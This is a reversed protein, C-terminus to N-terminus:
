SAAAVQHHIAVVAISMISLVPNDRDGRLAGPRATRRGHTIHVIRVPLADRPYVPAARDRLLIIVIRGPVLDGYRVPAPGQLTGLNVDSAAVQCRPRIGTAPACVEVVPIPQPRFPDASVAGARLCALDALADGAEGEAITEGAAAVAGVGLRAGVVEGAFFAVALGAQIVEASSVVTGTEPAKLRGIRQRPSAPLM